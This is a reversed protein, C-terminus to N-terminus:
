TWNVKHRYINCQIKGNSRFKFKNIAMKHDRSCRFKYYVFIRITTINNFSKCWSVKRTLWFYRKIYHETMWYSEWKLSVVSIWENFHKKSNSCSPVNICCFRTTQTVSFDDVPTRSILRTLVLSISFPFSDPPFFFALSLSFTVSPVSFTKLVLCLFFNFLFVITSLLYLLQFLQFGICGLHQQTPLFNYSSSVFFSLSSYLLSCCCLPIFVVIVSCLLPFLCFLFSIFFFFTMIAHLHYFHFWIFVDNFQKEVIYFWFTYYLFKINKIFLHLNSSIVVGKHIFFHFSFGLISILM